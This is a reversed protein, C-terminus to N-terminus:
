IEVTDTERRPPSRVRQVEDDDRSTVRLYLRLGSLQVQYVVDAYSLDWVPLRNVSLVRDGAACLAAPTVEPM